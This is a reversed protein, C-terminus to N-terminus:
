GDAKRDVFETIELGPTYVVYEREGPRCDVIHALLRSPPVVATWVKSPLHGPRDSFRTAFWQALQLDETWSWRYRSEEPAGRYLALPEAPRDARKGSDTYGAWQFLALWLDLDLDVQGDSMSWTDGVCRRAAPRTLLGLQRLHWLLTPAGNRGVYSLATEIQKQTPRDPKQLWLWNGMDDANTIVPVAGTSM